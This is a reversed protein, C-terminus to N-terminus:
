MLYKYFKVIKIQNYLLNVLWIQIGKQAFGPKAVTESTQHAVWLRCLLYQQILGSLLFPELLFEVANKYLRLFISEWSSCSFM